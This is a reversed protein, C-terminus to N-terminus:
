FPVFRRTPEEELMRELDHIHLGTVTDLYVECRRKINFEEPKRVVIEAKEGAPLGLEIHLSTKVTGHKTTTMWETRKIKLKNRKMLMLLQHPDHSYADIDIDSGHNITGRWVSGVLVPTYAELLKMLRLAQKRMQILREKRTAGEKEEAIRDLEIAVELNSPLITVRFTEAAKLKAQRYEKEIGLYLLNAAERAVKKRINLYPLNLHTDWIFPLKVM